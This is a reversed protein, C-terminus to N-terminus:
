GKGLKVAEAAECLLDATENWGLCADTISVEPLIRRNPGLTQRGELLHSELMVGAIEQRGERLQHLVERCVVSQRRPHGGSNGHSCDVLLPRAVGVEGARAMAAALHASDHNPGDNGGRLVLHVDPNGGSALVAPRGDPALGVFRHPAAAARLAHCASELSGDTANKLGVPFPAASALERHLQSEVTRAGIGGWAVLDALYPATLPSLIETACPVGLANVDRLLARSAHLGRAADGTGDLDPDAAFGKWGLSTRPKEVFTRMLVVLEGALSQALQRLSAAYSLASAPDHISCPGVIAILRDDRGHLVDRVARRGSQVTASARPPLPIAERLTAPTPLAEVLSLREHIRSENAEM